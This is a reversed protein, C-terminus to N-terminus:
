LNGAGSVCRITISNGNNTSVWRFKVYGELTSTTEYTTNNISDLYYVHNNSQIDSINFEASSVIEATGAAGIERVVQSLNFRFSTAGTQNPLTITKKTVEIAGLYVSIEIQKNASTLTLSGCFSIEFTSGKRTTNSERIVPFGAYNSYTLLDVPTTVSDPIVIDDLGLYLRQMAANLPAASTENRFFLYNKDGSTDPIISTSLRGQNLGLIENDFTLGNFTNVEQSFLESPDNKATERDIIHHLSM